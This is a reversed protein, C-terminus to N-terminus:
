TEKADKNIPNGLEDIEPSPVLPPKFGYEWRINKLYDLNRRYKFRPLHAGYSWYDTKMPLPGYYDDKFIVGTSYANHGVSDAGSGSHYDYHDAYGGFSQDNIQVNFQTTETDHHNFIDPVNYVPKLKQPPRGYIASISADTHVKISSPSNLHIHKTISPHAVPHLVTSTATLPYSPLKVTPLPLHDLHVHKIHPLKYFLSKGKYHVVPVISHGIYKTHHVIHKNVPVPIHVPYPYPVEKEVKVPIHVPVQVPVQIPVQVPVQVPVQYPIHVPVHVVKEVPYPRDVIKEVEVAVPRDVIKEVVKEVHVPVQVEKEVLKEVEVPRDVIKEVIKEVPYPVHIPKEVIKEVPYPRDIYKKVEVPYPVKIQKEVVKEVTVPRDIYKNVEVPYPVPRDVLKEVFKEVTVPKEVIKEVPVHIHKEVPYPRDIFKTIHVPKEVIRDVPYPIPVKKEVIRDVPYPHNIIKQVEVPYPVPKEVIKAVEVKKEVPIHIPVPTSVIRDVIVPVPKEVFVKQHVIRDVPKEIIVTPPPTNCNGSRCKTRAGFVPREIAKKETIVINKVNVSKQVEVITKQTTTRDKPTTPDDCDEDSNSLRLGAQIPALVNNSASQDKSTSVRTTTTTTTSIVDHGNNGKFQRLFQRSAPEEILPSTVLGEPSTTTSFTTEKLFQGNNHDDIIQINISKQSADAEQHPLYERSPIIRVEKPEQDTFEGTAVANETEDGVVIPSEFPSQDGRIAQFHKQSGEADEAAVEKQGDSAANFGTAKTATFLLRGTSEAAENINLVDQNSVLNQTSEVLKQIGVEEEQLKGDEGGEPAVQYSVGPSINIFDVDPPQATVFNQYPPSPIPFLITRQTDSATPSSQVVQQQDSLSFQQPSVIGVIELNGPHQIPLQAPPQTPLNATHLAFHQSMLSNAGKTTYRVVPHYGYADAIYDVTSHSQGNPLHVFFNGRINDRTQLVHHGHIKDAAGDEAGVSYSYSLKAANMEDRANHKDIDERPMPPPEIAIVQAALCIILFSQVAM